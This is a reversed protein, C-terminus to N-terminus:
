KFDYYIITRYFYNYSPDLKRKFGKLEKYPYDIVMTDSKGAHEIVLRLDTYEDFSYILDNLYITSKPPVILKIKGKEASTVVKENLISFGKKRLPIITNAASVAIDKKGITNNPFDSMLSLYAPEETINRVYIKYHLPPCGCLVTASLVLLFLVPYKRFNKL